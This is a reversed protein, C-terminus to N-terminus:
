VTKEEARSSERERQKAYASRKQEKIKENNIDYFERRMANIREKPTGNTSNYLELYLEPDYGAYETDDDFRVGYFCDCNAHIHKAHGNKITKKSAKEFGRSALAICFACTDGSPIWAVYAGDRIANQLTTDQGAQKVLRGVAGAVIDENGTKLTGNVAKAVEHINPPEAPEAPEVDASSLAALADYWECAVESAGASYKRVLAYAYDIIANRDASSLLGTPSLIGGAKFVADRFEDAAQQSMKALIDRYRTWEKLPMTLM